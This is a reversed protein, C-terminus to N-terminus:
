DSASYAIPIRHKSTGARPSPTCCCGPGTPSRGACSGRYGDRRPAPDRIRMPCTRFTEEVVREFDLFGADKDLLTRRGVGRNLVHFVVGAPAHRLPRSSGRVHGNRGDKDSKTAPVKEYAKRIERRLQKCRSRKTTARASDVLLCHCVEQKERSRDPGGAWVEQKERSRDPGGAVFSQLAARRAKSAKRSSLWSSSRRVARSDANLRNSTRRMASASIRWLLTRAQQQRGAFAAGAPRAAVSASQALSRLRFRLLCGWKTGTRTTPEVGASTSNGLKKPLSDLFLVRKIRHLGREARLHLVEVYRWNRALEM